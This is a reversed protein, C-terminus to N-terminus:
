MYGPRLLSTVAPNYCSENRTSPAGDGSPPGPRMGGAARQPMHCLVLGVRCIRQRTARRIAFFSGRGEREKTTCIRVSMYM